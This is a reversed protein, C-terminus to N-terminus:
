FNGSTAMKYSSLVGNIWLFFYIKFMEYIRTCVEESARRSQKWSPMDSDLLEREKKL